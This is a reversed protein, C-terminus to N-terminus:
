KAKEREEEHKVFWEVYGCKTCIWETINETENYVKDIEHEPEDCEPVTGWQPIKRNDSM